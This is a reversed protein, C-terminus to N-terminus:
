KKILKTISKTNGNNVSLIYIGTKLESLNLHTLETFSTTTYVVKGALDIISITSNILTNISLENIFPNPYVSLELVTGMDDLGNVSEGSDGASIATDPTDNYAYSKVVFTGNGDWNVLIWGFHTNAGLKFTAGIYSDGIVFQTTAWGPDVFGDAGINQFNSGASIITNVPLGIIQDWGGSYFDGLMVFGADANFMIGPEVVASFSGDNFTFEAGGGDFDVEVTGGSALTVDAIDNYVIAANASGFAMLSLVILQTKKRITNNKM